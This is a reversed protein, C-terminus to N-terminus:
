LAILYYTVFEVFALIETPHESVKTLPIQLKILIHFEIAKFISQGWLGTNRPM